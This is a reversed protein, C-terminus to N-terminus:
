NKSDVWMKLWIRCHNSYEQICRFMTNVLGVNYIVKM